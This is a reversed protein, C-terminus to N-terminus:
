LKKASARNDCREIKRALCYLYLGTAGRLRLYPLLLTAAPVMAFNKWIALHAALRHRLSQTSRLIAEEMDRASMEALDAPARPQEGAVRSILGSRLGMSLVQAARRVGLPEERL